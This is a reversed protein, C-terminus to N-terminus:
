MIMWSPNTTTLFSAKEKLRRKLRHMWKFSQSRNNTIKAVKQKFYWLVDYHDWHDKHRCGYHDKHRCGINELFIKDNKLLQEINGDTKVIQIEKENFGNYYMHEFMQDVSMDKGENQILFHHRALKGTLEGKVAVRSCKISNQHAANQILGVICWGLKAQYTYPGGNKSPIIKLPKLDKM